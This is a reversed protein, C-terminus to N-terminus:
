KKKKYDNPNLGLFIKESLSPLSLFYIPSKNYTYIRFFIFIPISFGLETIRFQKLSNSYIIMFIILISFILLYIVFDYQNEIEKLRMLDYWFYIYTVALAFYYYSEYNTNLFRKLLVSIILIIINIIWVYNFFIFMKSKNIKINNRKKIKDNHYKKIIIPFEEKIASMFEDYNMKPNNKVYEHLLVTNDKYNGCIILSENFIKLFQFANLIINGKNRKYFDDYIVYHKLVFFLVAFLPIILLSYFAFKINIFNNTEVMLIIQQLFLLIIPLSIKEIMSWISKNSSVILNINVNFYTQFLLYTSLILLTININDEFILIMYIHYTSFLLLFIIGPLTKIVNLLSKLLPKITERLNKNIIACIIFGLIILWMFGVDKFDLMKFILYVYHIFGRFIYKIIQM